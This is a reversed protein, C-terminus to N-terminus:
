NILYFSFIDLSYRQIMVKGVLSGSIIGRVLHLDHEKVTVDQQGHAHPHQPDPLPLLERLDEALWPRQPLTAGPGGALFM